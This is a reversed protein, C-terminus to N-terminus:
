PVIRTEPSPETENEGANSYATGPVPQSQIWDSGFLYFIQHFFRGCIWLINHVKRAKITCHLCTYNRKRRIFRFFGAIRM